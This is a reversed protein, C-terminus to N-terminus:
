TDKKSIDNFGDEEEQQISTDKQEDERKETKFYGTMDGITTTTPGTPPRQRKTEIRKIDDRDPGTRQSRRQTRGDEDSIKPRRRQNNAVVGIARQKQRRWKMTLKAAPATTQRRPRERWKARDSRDREPLPEIDSDLGNLQGGKNSTDRYGTTGTETETTEDNDSVM